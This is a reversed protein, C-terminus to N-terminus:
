IYLNRDPINLQGRQMEFRTNVRRSIHSLIFMNKLKCYDTQKRKVFRSSHLQISQNCRSAPIRCEKTQECLERPSLDMVQTIGIICGNLGLIATTERPSQSFMKHWTGQLMKKYCSFHFEEDRSKALEGQDLHIM